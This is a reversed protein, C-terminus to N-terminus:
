QLLNDWNTMNATTRMNSFKWARASSDGHLIEMGQGSTHLFNLYTTSNADTKQLDAYAYQNKAEGWPFHSRCSNEGGGAASGIKGECVLFTESPNVMSARRPRDSTLNKSTAPKGDSIGDM